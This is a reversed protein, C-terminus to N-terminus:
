RVAEREPRVEPRWQRAREHDSWLRSYLGGQSVLENHAGREVIQGQDVVVIQDASQITSLRHAIVLLTRGAALASLADQILAESEPDAFATAEDLVLLPTDVLLARAISLRQAEGGSFLADEGVISSYGRPLEQIRDHIQAARAVREVDADTADPRGLRINDGVSTNLLQVDQFVFTVWRYLEDAHIDRLDVGGLLIRGKDPDWFRPILKAITTKGSGSRGVLATTTGPELHLDIGDLAAHQGDYSFHVGEFVLDSSEPVKPAVSVPLTETALLALVRDSAEVAELTPTAASFLGTLPGTISMGLLVFPIVDVPAIWGAAVFGTGAAGIVVLTTLPAMVTEAIATTKLSSSMIDGMVSLFRDTATVFRRYSRGTQGFTKIVSIGQVFEVAKASIDGMTTSYEGMRPRMKSLEMGYLAFGILLPLLAALAMGSNVSFLYVLSVVPVVAGDVLDLGTHAVLHHMSLVDDSVGKKVAGSGRTTFWGLPAAGLRVAMRRRVTLQMKTDALHTMGGTIFVCVLRTVVAGVAVWGWAWVAAPSVAGDGLLLRSLQAVAIFPVVSAAAGVAQIAFASLLRVRIPRLLNWLGRVGSASAAASAGAAPAGITTTTSV